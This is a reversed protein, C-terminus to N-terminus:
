LQLITITITPSLSHATLAHSEFRKKLELKKKKLLLKKEKLQCDLEM